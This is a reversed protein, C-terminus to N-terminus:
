FGVYTVLIDGHKTFRAVVSCGCAYDWRVQGCGLITCRSSQCPCGKCCTPLCVPLAVQVGTEPSCAELVTEYSPEVCCGCAHKHRHAHKHRYKISPNTPCVTEPGCGPEVGFAPEAFELPGGFGMPGGFGIGGPPIGIPDGGGIPALVLGPDVPYGAPSFASAGRRQPFGANAIGAIGVLFLSLALGGLLRSRFM